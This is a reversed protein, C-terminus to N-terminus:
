TEEMFDYVGTFINVLTDQRQAAVVFVIQNYSFM